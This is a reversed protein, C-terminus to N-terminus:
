WEGGADRLVRELRAIKAYAFREITDCRYDAHMKCERNVGVPM